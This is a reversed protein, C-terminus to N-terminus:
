VAAVEQASQQVARPVPRIRSKIWARVRGKTTMPLRGFYGTLEPGTSIAPSTYKSMSSTSTQYGEETAFAAMAPNGVLPDNSDDRLGTGALLSERRESASM